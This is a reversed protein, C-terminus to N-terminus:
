KLLFGRDSLIDSLSFDAARVSGICAYRALARSILKIQGLRGNKLVPTQIGRSTM